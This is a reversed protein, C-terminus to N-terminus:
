NLCLIQWNIYVRILQDIDIKSDETDQPDLLELNEM